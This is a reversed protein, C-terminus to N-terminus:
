APKDPRRATRPATGGAEVQLKHFAEEILGNPLASPNTCPKWDSRRHRPMHGHEASAFTINLGAGPPLIPLGHFAVM